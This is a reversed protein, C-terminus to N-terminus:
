SKSKDVFYKNVKDALDTLTMRRAYLMDDLKVIIEM